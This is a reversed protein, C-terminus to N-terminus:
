ANQKLDSKYVIVLSLELEATLVYFTTSASIQDIFYKWYIPVIDPVQLEVNSISLPFHQYLQFHQIFKSCMIKTQTDKHWNLALDYCHTPSIQQNSFSLEHNKCFHIKVAPLYVKIGEELYHLLRIASYIRTSWIVESTETFIAALKIM